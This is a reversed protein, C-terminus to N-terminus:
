SVVVETPRDPYGDVVAAKAADARSPDELRVVVEVGTNGSETTRFRAAVPAPLAFKQRRLVDTVLRVVIDLIANKEGRVKTAHRRAQRSEARSAAAEDRVERREGRALANRARPPDYRTAALRAALMASSDRASSMASSAWRSDRKTFTASAAATTLPGDIQTMAIARNPLQPGRV